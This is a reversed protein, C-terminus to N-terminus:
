DCNLKNSSVKSCYNEQGNEAYVFPQVDLLVPIKGDFGEIDTFARIVNFEEGPKLGVGGEGLDIFEGLSYVGFEADARDSVRIIFGDINFTGKNELTINLSDDICELNKIILTVGEPCTEVDSPTVQFRLWNYVLGSLAIAIVILLVYAVIISVGRKCFRLPKPFCVFKENSFNAKKNLGLM